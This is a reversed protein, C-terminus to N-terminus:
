QVQQRAELYGPNLCAVSPFMHKMKLTCGVLVFACNHLLRNHQSIVSLRQLLPHLSIMDSWIHVKSTFCLWLQGHKLTGNRAEFCPGLIGFHIRNTKSPQREHPPFTPTSCYVVALGITKGHRESRDFTKPQVLVNSAYRNISHFCVRWTLALRQKSLMM